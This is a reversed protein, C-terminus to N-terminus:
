ELYIEDRLRQLNRMFASTGESGGREERIQEMSARGKKSSARRPSQEFSSRQLVDRSQSELQKRREEVQKALSDVFKYRPKEEATGKWVAALTRLEEVRREAAELGATGGGDSELLETVQRRIKRAVEHGKEERSHSDASSDPGSVSIFSSAISVESPPLPWEMADGFTHIVEELRNRVQSLMRLHSLFPPDLNQAAEKGVPQSGENCTKNLSIRRELIALEEKPATRADEGADPIFKGVDDRLADTLTESLGISEGRLVEVEYALRGGSRLIEDTLQTLTNSLKANQANLQSLFAQTQAALESLPASRSQRLTHPQNSLALSPLSNNLYDIPDFSPDIFPQLAADSPNAM